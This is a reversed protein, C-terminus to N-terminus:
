KRDFQFRIRKVYTPNLQSEDFAGLESCLSKELGRNLVDEYISKSAGTPSVRARFAERGKFYLRSLIEMRARPWKRKRVTVAIELGVDPRGCYGCSFMLAELSMEFIEQACPSAKAFPMLASRWFAKAAMVDDTFCRLVAFSLRGNLLVPKDEEESYKEAGSRTAADAGTGTGTGRGTGTGTGADPLTLLAAQLKRWLRDRLGTLEADFGRKNSSGPSLTEALEYLRSFLLFYGRSGCLVPEVAHLPSSPAAVGAFLFAAQDASVPEGGPLGTVQKDVSPESLLAAMLTNGSRPSASVSENGSLHHRATHLAETPCGLQGLTEVAARTLPASLKMGTEVQRLLAVIEAGSTSMRIVSSFTYPDPTVGYTGMVDLMEKARQTDGLARYGEIMINFTRIMPVLQAPALFHQSFLADAGVADKRRFADSLLINMTDAELRLGSATISALLESVKDRRNHRLLAQFGINYSARAVDYSQLPRLGADHEGRLASLFASVVGSVDGDKHLYHLQGTM